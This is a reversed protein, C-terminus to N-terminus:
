SANGNTYDEIGTADFRARESNRFADWAEQSIFRVGSDVTDIALMDDDIKYVEIM